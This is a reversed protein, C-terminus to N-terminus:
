YKSRSLWLVEQVASAALLACSFFTFFISVAVHDCFRHLPKCFNPLATHQIGTRNLNTVGAAAAGASAMAYALVQDGAFILWAHSRSPIVPSRNILRSMSIILQMLSHAAVAVSVGVLFVFAHAFSWKSQVPFSFGYVVLTSSQQATVMLAVAIVAAVMCTARLVVHVVDGRRGLPGGATAAGEGVELPGSITGSNGTAAAVKSEPLQVAVEPPHQMKQGNTMM